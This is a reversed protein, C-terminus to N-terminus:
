DMGSMENEAFWDIVVRFYRIAAMTVVVMAWVEVPTPLVPLLTVGPVLEM